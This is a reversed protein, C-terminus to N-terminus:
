ALLCMMMASCGIGANSSATAEIPLARCQAWFKAAITPKKCLFYILVRYRFLLLKLAHMQWCPKHKIAIGIRLRICDLTIHREGDCDAAVYGGKATKNERMDGSRFQELGQRNLAFRHPTKAELRPRGHKPTEVADGPSVRVSKSRGCRRWINLRSIPQDMRVLGPISDHTMVYIVRQEMLASLSNVPPLLRYLGPINRWLSSAGGHLAIGNMAAAMGHERVGYHIYNGSTIRIILFSHDAVRTNNSGTLDASGGFLTPCAPLVAEIVKQSAVRTALKQPENALQEKWAKFPAPLPNTLTMTLPLLKPTVTRAECTDDQWAKRQIAGKAGVTRWAGRIDAPIEFAPHPWNLTERVLAIEADGLPSGHVSSTGQKIQHAM